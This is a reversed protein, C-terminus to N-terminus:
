ENEEEGKMENQEIDEFARVCNPHGVPNAAAEEVTWIQGDVEQCEACSDASDGDHVIVSSVNNAKYGALTGQNYALASETRAIRLARAEIGEEDFAKWVEDVIEGISAGTETSTTIIKNIDERLTDSIAYKSPSTIWNTGDWRKGILEAARRRAMEEVGILKINKDPLGSSLVGLNLFDKLWDVIENWEDISYDQKQTIKKYENIQHTVAKKIIKKWLEKGKAFITTRELNPRIFKVKGKRAQKFIESIENENGAVKLFRSIRSHLKPNICNSKFVVSPNGEVKLGYKSKREWKALDEAVAKQQDAPASSTSPMAPLSAAITIPKVEILGQAGLVLPEDFEPQEIAPLGREKRIENRSRIGLRVFELDEQLKQGKNHDVEEVWEFAFNRENLENQIYDDFIEKIFKQYSKLGEQLSTESLGQTNQGLSNNKIIWLPNVGITWSFIRMLYEDFDYQWDFGQRFQVPEFSAPIGKIHHRQTPDKMLDTLLREWKAIQEKSWSDPMKMFAPPINENELWSQYYIGRQLM